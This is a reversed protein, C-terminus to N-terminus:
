AATARSGIRSLQRSFDTPAALMTDLKTLARLYEPNATSARLAADVKQQTAFLLLYIEHLSAAFEADQRPQSATELSMTDVLEEWLPLNVPPRARSRGVDQFPRFPVAIHPHRGCM